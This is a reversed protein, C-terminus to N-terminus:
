PPPRPLPVSVDLRLWPPPPAPKRELDAVPLPLELLISAVFCSLNAEIFVSDCVSIGFVQSVAKHLFIQLPDYM